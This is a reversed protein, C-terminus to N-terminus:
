EGGKAATGRGDCDLCDAVGGMPNMGGDLDHGTGDCTECKAAPAPSCKVWGADIIAGAFHRVGGSLHDMFEVLENVKSERDQVAPEDGVRVMEARAAKEADTSGAYFKDIDSKAIADLETHLSLYDIIATAQTLRSQKARNAADLACIDKWQKKYEPAFEIVMEALDELEDDWKRDSTNCAAFKLNDFVCAVAESFNNIKKLREVEAKLADREAELDDVRQDAVNLRQQLAANEAQLREYDALYIYVGAAGKFTYQKVESM